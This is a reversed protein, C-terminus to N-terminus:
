EPLQEEISYNLQRAREIFSNINDKGWQNSLAYKSGDEFEIIENDNIFHRLIGQRSFTNKAIDLTVFMAGGHIEQPFAAVLVDFDKPNYTEIWKKVVALVLKRKNYMNGDFLYQTYDKISQRAERRENSQEKFKVQYSIAEPLPIIQEIDLIIKGQYKYPISRVCKIDINKDRLWLVTTTLEKSFDASVLIIRVDLAFKDEEPQEWGLFNMLSSKPDQDLKNINLYKEFIECAKTFTLTSVMAAYRAAQLEMHAGTENRKLEIVVVNGGTDIALLDIRRQSDDWESFEESIILCNEDIIGIDNKIANQMHQRELIGEESFRTMEIRQLKMNEFSYLAM